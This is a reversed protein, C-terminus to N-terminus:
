SWAVDMRSSRVSYAGGSSRSLAWEALEGPEGRPSRRGRRRGGAAQGPADLLLYTGFGTPKFYFPTARARALKNARYADAGAIAVFRADARSRIAFCGNALSPPPGLAAAM